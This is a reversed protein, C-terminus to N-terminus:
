PEEVNPRYEKIAPIVEKGLLDICRMAVDHAMPGERAWLILWAPNAVDILEKLQAIVSDPNGTFVRKSNQANEYTLEAYDGHGRLGQMAAIARRSLYGPPQNWELPIRGFTTGLQWFFKKGEEYAKENTDQVIVQAVYGFYEPTATYGAEAATDKYTRWIGPVVEFPINLCIYPYGHEAAWVITEPSSFGPVWIPPHPKQIPLVWPNIVRYSFHEGEWRFPGPTTWTKIILDHAEEFRARNDIPNTNTALAETGVGRVFGSVIRGGSIVDMMAIEEAIRVPQDHIPLINGLIVIRGRDTIKSLVAGTINVSPNICYPVNHHENIMIGDFGNEVAFQHEEFYWNYLQHAKQPDFLSNPFQFGTYGYQEAAEQPYATYGMETFFFVEKVM